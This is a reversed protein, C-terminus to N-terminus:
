YRMGKLPDRQFILANSTFPIPRGLLYDTAHQLIVSGLPTAQQRLTFLLRGVPDPNKPDVKVTWYTPMYPFTM